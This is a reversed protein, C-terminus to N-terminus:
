TALSQALHISSATDPEFFTFGSEVLVRPVVRQSTLVLEEAMEPGLVLRLAWAPTRLIARRHLTFALDRAFTLNTCPEPSTLNVVGSIEHDLTWLIARVEDVLAIPSMWQNGSGHAGGIGIRYLPLQKKVFGGISSVVPGTRLQTVRGRDSYASAAGEWAHCLDSLFGEGRPSTEELVEDGRTGYWGVASGSVLHAVGQPLGSLAKVLLETSAVRSSFIERKRADTWRRDGIGTGALNVVADFGDVRALDGEDLLGRDPQWRVSDSADDKSSPRVFRVVHDGREELARVLSRGILGSAGTLAVRM